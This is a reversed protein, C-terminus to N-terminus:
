LCIHKLVGFEKDVDIVKYGNALYLELIKKFKTPDDIDISKSMFFENPDDWVSINM